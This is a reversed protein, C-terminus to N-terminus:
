FLKSFEGDKEELEGGKQQQQQKLGKEDKV